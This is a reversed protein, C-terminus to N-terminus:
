AQNEPLKIIKIKGILPLEYPEEKFAHVISIIIIVGVFIVWAFIAFALIWGLFPIWCIFISVFGPLCFLIGLLSNNMHNITLENKTGSAYAIILGIWSLYAVISTTKQDM